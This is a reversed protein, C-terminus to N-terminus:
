PKQSARATATQYSEGLWNNTADADIFCAKNNVFTDRAIKRQALLANCFSKEREGSAVTPCAGFVPTPSDLLNKSALFECDVYRSRGDIETYKKSVLTCYEAKGQEVGAVANCTTVITTLPINATDLGRYANYAIYIGGIVVVILVLTLIMSGGSEDALGGRKM